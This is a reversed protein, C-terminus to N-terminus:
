SSRIERSINLENKSIDNKVSLFNFYHEYFLDVHIEAKYAFTIIKRLKRTKGKLGISLFSFESIVSVWWCGRFVSIHTCLKLFGLFMTWIADFDCHNLWMTLWVAAIQIKFANSGESYILNLGNKNIDTKISLCNFFHDICIWM